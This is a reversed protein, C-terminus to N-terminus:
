GQLKVVPLNAAVGTPAGLTAPMIGSSSPNAFDMIHPTGTNVIAGMFANTTAARWVISNSTATFTLIYHGPNVTLTGTATGTKIGSVSCDVAGTEVIKTNGDSSSIGIGCNALAAGTTIEFVFSTITLKLPL